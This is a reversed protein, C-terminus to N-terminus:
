FWVEKKPSLRGGRYVRPKGWILKRAMLFNIRGRLFRRFPGKKPRKGKRKPPVQGLVL